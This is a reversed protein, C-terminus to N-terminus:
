VYITYVQSPSLVQPPLIINHPKQKLCDKARYYRKKKEEQQKSKKRTPYVQVPVKQQTM